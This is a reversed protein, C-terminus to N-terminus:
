ATLRRYAFLVKGLIRFKRSDEGMNWILPTNQFALDDSEPWFECVDAVQRMRRTVVHHADGDCYEIVVLDGDQPEAGATEARVCHLVDGDQAIKNLSKGEVRIGFQAKAPYDAVKPFAGATTSTSIMDGGGAGIEALLTLVDSTKNDALGGRGECCDHM